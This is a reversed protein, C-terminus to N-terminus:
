PYSLFFSTFLYIYPTICYTFIHPSGPTLFSSTTCPPPYLPFHPGVEVGQVACSCGAVPVVWSPWLKGPSVSDSPPFSVFSFVPSPALQSTPSFFTPFSSLSYPRGPFPFLLNNPISFHTNVKIYKSM